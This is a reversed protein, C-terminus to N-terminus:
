GIVWNITKLVRNSLLRQILHNEMSLSRLELEVVKMMNEDVKDQKTNDNEKFKEM